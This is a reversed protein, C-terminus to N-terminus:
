LEQIQEKGPTVRLISDVNQKIIGYEKLEKKVENYQESLREREGDLKKYEAKLAYLNPLKKMGAEKLARAAAEYLILQSEHERRFAAKDKARHYELAVPRTQKYTSIQKILLAMEGLRREVAKLAAAAEDNATSIEDLRSELGEYSEIQHETLFNLAKAAQKLNYLKAWRAYGASQQAKINNEIEIRLSIGQEVKRKPGRDVALGKIRRTIAEETYDVGLTKCRTFREQGPSRFSIFKGRKMEYGQAEMLRLFSDFDRAQPIAADIATKLKAKWSKGKRQADWEAYSKGKDKGPMVVSLGHERCLRDNTRRIYAYSQRNSIYKRQNAMDVACFIIHNHLHGKDIHTTIVYPYKGGLVEDALQRGIEHAQEPTTEGPEFAQILHHALNNGKKLAQDLLMQFEIDATEYSCGYSSVFLKEDTKDPNEIYDLAKRLTSKIPHIKTVAM